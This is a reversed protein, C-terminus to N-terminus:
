LTALRGFSAEGEDGHAEHVRAIRAAAHARKGQLGAARGPPHGENDTRAGPCWGARQEEQGLRSRARRCEVHGRARFAARHPRRRAAAEHALPRAPERGHRERVREEGPQTRRSVEEGLLEEGRREAHARRGRVDEEDDVDRAGHQARENQERDTEHIVRPAREGPKERAGDQRETEHQRRGKEVRLAEEVPQFPLEQKARAHVQCVRQEARGKELPQERRAARM